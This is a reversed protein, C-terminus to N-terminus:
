ANSKTVYRVLGMANDGVPCLKRLRDLITRPVGGLAAVDVHHLERLTRDPQLYFVKLGFEGAVYVLNDAVALGTALSDPDLSRDSLLLPDAALTVDLHYLRSGGVLFLDDDSIAIDRFGDPPLTVNLHYPFEQDAFQKKIIIPHM